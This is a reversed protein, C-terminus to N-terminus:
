DCALSWGPARLWCRDAAVTTDRYLRTVKEWGGKLFAEALAAESVADRASEAPIVSVPSVWSAPFDASQRQILFVAGTKPVPLTPDRKATDQDTTLPLVLRGGEVLGDLWTDLPRTAGANVYIVDATEFATVAGNGPIVQVQPLHALNRRAREALDPDIEIGSVRGSPGVLHAFIATYYGTGTGIHVVHDGEKVAAAAMWMVHASPLGNNLYRDIVIAFVNDTYLYVPDASPTPQYAGDSWYSWMM